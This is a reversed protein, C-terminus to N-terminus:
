RSHVEIKTVLVFTQNNDSTQDCNARSSVILGNQCLGFLMELSMLKKRIIVFSVFLM